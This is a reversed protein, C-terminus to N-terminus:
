KAGVVRSNATIKERTNHASRKACSLPLTTTPMHHTYDYHSSYFSSQGIQHENNIVSLGKRKSWQSLHPPTYSGRNHRLRARQMFSRFPYWLLAPHGAQTQGSNILSWKQKEKASLRHYGSNADDSDRLKVSKTLSSCQREPSLTKCSVSSSEWTHVGGQEPFTSYFFPSDMKNHRRRTADKGKDDLLLM